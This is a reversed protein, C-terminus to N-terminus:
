GTDFFGLVRPVEHGCNNCVWTTTPRRRRFLRALRGRSRVDDSQTLTSAKRMEQGCEPCDM